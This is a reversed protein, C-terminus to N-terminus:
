KTTATHHAPAICLQFQIHLVVLLLFCNIMDSVVANLILNFYRDSTLTNDYLILGFLNYRLMYYRVNVSSQKQHSTDRVAFNNTNCWFHKKKSSKHMLITQYVMRLDLSLKELFPKEDILNLIWNIFLEINTYYIANNVAFALFIFWTVALQQQYLSYM